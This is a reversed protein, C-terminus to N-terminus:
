TSRRPNGLVKRLTGLARHTAVKLAAISMGSAAAAEKLSMEELKLLKIARRQGSPLSEVAARLASADSMANELNAEAASFTEHQLRFSEQRLNRRLQRRLQDAIRRNAIAALWPAFPRRPDYTHRIAHVTLLVQQVADEIESADRLRRAALARIFPTINELVRHYAERDGAQARAMLLARDHDREAPNPDATDNRPDAASTLLSPDKGRRSSM